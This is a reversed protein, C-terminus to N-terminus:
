GVDSVLQEEPWDPSLNRSALFIAWKNIDSVVGKKEKHSWYEGIKTSNSHKPHKPTKCLVDGEIAIYSMWYKAKSITDTHFVETVSNDPAIRYVVYSVSWEM